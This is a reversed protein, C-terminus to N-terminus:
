EDPSPSAKTAGSLRWHRDGSHVAHCAVAGNRDNRAQLVGHVAHCEGFYPKNTDSGSALM